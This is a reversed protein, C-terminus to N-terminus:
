LFFLECYKIFFECISQLEYFLEVFPLINMFNLIHVKNMIQYCQVTQFTVNACTIIVASFFGVKVEIKFLLPM